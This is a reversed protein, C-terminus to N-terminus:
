ATSSAPSRVKSMGRTTISARDIEHHNAISEIHPWRSEDFDEASFEPDCLKIPPNDFAIRLDVRCIKATLMTRIMSHEAFVEAMGPQSQAVDIYLVTLRKGPRIAKIELFWCEALDDDLSRRRSGTDVLRHDPRIEFSIKEAKKRRKKLNHIFSEFSKEKKPSLSWIILLIAFFVLGIVYLM